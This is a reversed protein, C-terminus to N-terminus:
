NIEPHNCNVNLRVNLQTFTLHVGHYSYELEQYVSLVFEMTM